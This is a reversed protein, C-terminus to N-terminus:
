EGIKTFATDIVGCARFKWIYIKTTTPYPLERIHKQYIDFSGVHVTCATDNVGCANLNKKCLLAM